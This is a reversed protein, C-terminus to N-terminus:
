AKKIQYITFVNADWSRVRAPRRVFTIEDERFVWKVLQELGDPRGIHDRAIYLAYGDFGLRKATRNATMSRALRLLLGSESPVYITLWAGRAAVRRWEELAAEPETLHILLCTAIVRDICEDALPLKSANAQLWDVSSSEGGALPALEVPPPRLDSAIYTDYGHHVFPQHEGKGAGVELVTAFRQSPSFPKEMLQHVWRILRSNEPTSPMLPYCDRYFVDVNGYASGFEKQSPNPSNRQSGM